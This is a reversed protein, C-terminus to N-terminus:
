VLRALVQQRARIYRATCPEMALSNGEMGSGGVGVMHYTAALVQVCCAVLGRHFKNSTLLAAQNPCGTVREESLLIAELAQFYLKVAQTLTHTSPPAVCRHGCALVLVCVCMAVYVCCLLCVYLYVVLVCCARVCVCM